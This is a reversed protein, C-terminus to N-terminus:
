TLKRSQKKYYVAFLIQGTFFLINTFIRIFIVARITTMVGEPDNSRFHLITYLDLKTIIIAPLTLLFYIIFKKFNVETIIKSLKWYYFAVILLIIFKLLTALPYITTHWGPIVSSLFNSTLYLISYPFLLVLLFICILFTTKTKMM